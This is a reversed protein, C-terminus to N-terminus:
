TFHSNKKFVYMTYLFLRQTLIEYANEIYVKHKKMKQALFFFCIVLSSFFNYIIGVIKNLCARLNQIAKCVVYMCVYMSHMFVM